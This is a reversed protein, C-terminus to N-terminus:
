DLYITIETPRSVNLENRAREDLMDRDFTGDQLLLIRRQMSNRKLVLRDLEEQLLASQQEFGEKALLGRGGHISHYGFYSIFGAAIVPVLYRGTNRIKKQRTSM